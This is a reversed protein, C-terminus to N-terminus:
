VRYTIGKTKLIYNVNNKEKSDLEMQLAKVLNIEKGTLYTLSFPDYYSRLGYAKNLELWDTNNKLKRMISYIAAEDTQDLWNSNFSDELKDAWTVFQTTKYSAKIKPDIEEDFMKKNKKKQIAEALEKQIIKYMGYAVGAGIGIAIVTKIPRKEKPDKPRSAAASAVGTVGAIIAPWM